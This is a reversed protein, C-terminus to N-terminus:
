AESWTFLYRDDFVGPSCKNCSARLKMTKSKRQRYIKHGNPCTGVYKGSNIEGWCRKGDGGLEIHKARWVKDHGHGPTLAHAVEHLVTNIFKEETWTVAIYASVGIEHKSYRCQGGRTKSRDWVFRWGTLGHNALLKLAIGDLHFIYTLDDYNDLTIRAM